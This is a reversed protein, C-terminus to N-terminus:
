SKIKEKEYALILERMKLRAHYLNSKIAEASMDLAEAAEQTEAGQLDRLVFVAQQKEPLQSALLAVLQLREEQDRAQEHSGPDSVLLREDASLTERGRKRAPSKLVDLCQNTVMTYLWTTIKSDERYGDLKRWMKVFVEQAADEADDRSALFRYALNIVFRRHRRVLDGFALTDGNRARRVLDTDTPPKM